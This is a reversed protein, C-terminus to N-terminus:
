VRRHELTRQSVLISGRVDKVGAMRLITVLANELERASVMEPAVVHM